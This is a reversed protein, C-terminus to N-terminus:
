PATWRYLWSESIQQESIKLGLRMEIVETGGTALDFMVRVGAIDPNRQVVLGSMAGSSVSVEATPMERLDRATPGAFDVVFRVTDAKRTPSVFTKAVYAGAAAVPAGNGWYLRYAFSVATGPELPVRPKWYVVINDHIEEDTPIEILEVFGDGWPAAPEVWLSPRREFRASLDQYTAFSRDRQMLGFGKPSKDMFASTQLKKPNTLPRWLREGRGNSIALGESNHVSDRYDEGIRQNASGRLFMSTLPAIGVHTMQRRPYLTAEVDMITSDGPRLLFEYAGAVSPSDLLAYIKVAGASAKPKEVWFARFIPFEEGAAQATNVALGRAALGYYQGRGAGKFYSAGQFSVFDELQDARNLYGAVRLGSFGFPAAEPTKDISNGFSFMRSDASLSRMKGGEVIWLAVPINYLWGLPLPQVEFDLGQGRWIAQDPRLRIDRYQEFTLNNFPESAEIVPRVFESAAIQEALKRVHDAAFPKAEEEAAQQAQAPLSGALSLAWQSLGTVAALAGGGLLATRRDLLAQSM